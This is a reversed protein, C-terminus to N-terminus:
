LGNKGVEIVHHAVFGSGGTILATKVYQNEKAKGCDDDPNKGCFGETEEESALVIAGIATIALGALMNISNPSMLDSFNSNNESLFDIFCFWSLLLQVSKLCSSPLICKM